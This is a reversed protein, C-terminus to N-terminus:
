EGHRVGGIKGSFNNRLKKLAQHLRSKITGLPKQELEAIESLSYGEWYLLNILRQQPESLHRKAEQIQQKLQNRTVQQQVDDAPLGQMQQWDELELQVTGKYKQEKRILDISINRTITLLWNVFQGQSANYTSKTTWLRLFVQQVIEKTKETDGKTIKISFSYILKVYRDYLEELAPRHNQVILEILEEDSKSKM